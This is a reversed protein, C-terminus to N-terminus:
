RQQQSEAMQAMLLRLAEEKEAKRRAAEELRNNNKDIDLKKQEQSAASNASKEHLHFAHLAMLMKQQDESLYTQAAKVIEYRVEVIYDSGSVASGGNETGPIFLDIGLAELFERKEELFRM